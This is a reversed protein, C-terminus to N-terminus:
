KNTCHKNYITIQSPPTLLNSNNIPQPYRPYLNLKNYAIIIIALDLYLPPTAIDDASIIIVIVNNNDIVDTIDKVEGDVDSLLNVLGDVDSLLIVLM